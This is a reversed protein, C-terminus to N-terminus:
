SYVFRKVLMAGMGFVVSGIALPLIGTAIGDVKAVETSLDDIPTTQAAAPQSIVLAAAGAGVGAGLWKRYDNNHVTTDM